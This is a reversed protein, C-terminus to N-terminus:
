TNSLRRSNGCKGTVMTDGYSTESHTGVNRTILTITVAILIDSFIIFSKSWKNGEVHSATDYHSVHLQPQM